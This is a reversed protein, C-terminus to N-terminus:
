DLHRDPGETKQILVGKPFIPAKIVYPRCRPHRLLQGDDEARSFNLLKESADSLDLVASDQRDAVGGAQPDRPAADGHM